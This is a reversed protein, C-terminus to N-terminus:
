PLYTADVSIIDVQPNDFFQAQVAVVQNVQVQCDLYWKWEVQQEENQYPAQKPDDALLPVISSPQAAFQDVAFEDRFLTSVIQALDGSTGDAAHFDLQVTARSNQQVQQSGSSMTESSVTQTPTIQYTGVGGTGTGLATVVTNAALGVGFVSGGVGIVGTTFDEDVGTVTMLTGAISATFRANQFRDINTEIRDFRPPWMVVYRNAAPQAVRNPQGPIVIVDSPLVALMFARISALVASQNPAISATM